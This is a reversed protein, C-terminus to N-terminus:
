ITIPSDINITKEELEFAVGYKKLEKSLNQKAIDLLQQRLEMSLKGSGLIFFSIQVQTNTIKEGQSLEIFKVETNRIDVGFIDKTSEFIIQKIFAQESEPIAQYFTIYILSIVKKARTYNEVNVQTLSSNPAIIVTGKGSTRIRTSRLGISEVKGFTGDPLGIYDDIVFPRDLYLVIGGLLQELTKQAAFAIALGGIGLSAFLGVLNIQHTQAFILIIVLIIATNILFRSIILLESDFRGRNKVAADLLYTQFVQQFIQQGLRSLLIVVTIALPLELFKLWISKALSM